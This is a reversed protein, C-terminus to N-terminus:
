HAPGESAAAPKAHYIYAAVGDADVEATFSLGYLMLNGRQHPVDDISDIKAKPIVTRRLWGNSELEDFILPVPKSPIGKVKLASYTEKNTADATVNDTGYRLQAVSLRDVEVFEAKYKTKQDTVETRLVTGHWGKHDTSNSETSETFGNESLEGLSVFDESLKAAAATPLAPNEAFSTFCCGGEVPKGVTVLGPDLETM